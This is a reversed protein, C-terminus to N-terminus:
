GDGYKKDFKAMESQPVYITVTDAPDRYQESHDDDKRFIHGIARNCDSWASVADMLGYAGAVIGGCHECPQDDVGFVEVPVLKVRVLPDGAPAAPSPEVTARPRPADAM